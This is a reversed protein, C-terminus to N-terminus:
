EGNANEEEPNKLRILTASQRRNEDFHILIPVEDNTLNYLGVEIVVDDVGELQIAVRQTEKDIAGSVPTVKDTLMDQLNGRVVGEKNLALQVVKDTETQGPEKIFAFVGLPLWEENETEGGTAAIEEAENYYQEETAVVEDGYYVNGEVYTVNDEYDYYVGGGTCGCYPGAVVWTATTWATAAVAWRGPWWARPYRVVYNPGFYGWRTYRGNVATWAKGGVFQGNVYAKGRGASLVNGGPGRIASASRTTGTGTRVNGSAGRANVKTYGWQNQRGTVSGARVNGRNDAAVGRVNGARNGQGDSAGVGGVKAGARNGQGDSVGVGASGKTITKGGATEIKIGKGGGVATGGEGTKKGIGGGVTISGGNATEFTKSGSKSGSGVIPNSPKAQGSNSRISSRNTSKSGSSNLFSDIQSRSSRDFSSASRQSNNRISSANNRTATNRNNIAQRNSSQGYQAQLNRSQTNRTQNNRAQVNRSLSNSSQVNRSQVNRSQVNRQQASSRIQSSRNAASSRSMTPSHYSRAGTSPRSFGGSRGGGARGGGRRQAHLDSAVLFIFVLPLLVFKFQNM